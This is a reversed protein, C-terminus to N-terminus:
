CCLNEKPFWQWATLQILSALQQIKIFVPRANLMCRGFRIYTHSLTKFMGLLFLFHSRLEQLFELFFFVFFCGFCNNQLPRVPLLLPQPLLKQMTNKSAQQRSRFINTEMVSKLTSHIKNLDSKINISLYFLGM